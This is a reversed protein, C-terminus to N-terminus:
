CKLSKTKTTPTKKKRGTKDTIIIIIKKEVERGGRSFSKWLDLMERHRPFFSLTFWIRANETGKGGERGGGSVENRKM